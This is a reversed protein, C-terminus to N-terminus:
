PRRDLWEISWDEDEIKYSGGCYPCTKNKTADFSGGCNPCHIGTIQFRMNVPKNVNKKMVVRVVEDIRSVKCGRYYTDTLFVDSTCFVYDGETKIDVLGVVGRSAVEVIDKYAPNIPKGNYFPLETPNDSLLLMKVMSMVKGSFFFYSYEPSIKKMFEEFQKITGLYPVASLKKSSLIAFRILVIITGIIWGFFAGGFIAMIGMMFFMSLATGLIQMSNFTVSSDGWASGACMGLGGLLAILLSAIIDLLLLVGVTIGMAPLITKGFMEGYTYAFDPEIHYNSIKPYLESMKFKNGCSPCGDILNKIKSPTGCDPCIYEDEAVDEYSTVGTMTQQIKSREKYKFLKKGDKFFEEQQGMSRIEVTNIYHGDRWKNGLNFGDAQNGRVSYDFKATLGHRKIRENQLHLSYQLDRDADKLKEGSNISDDLGAIFREFINDSNKRFEKAM